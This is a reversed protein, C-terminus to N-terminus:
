AAAAALQAPISFWLRDGAGPELGSWLARAGEERAVTLTTGVLGRANLIRYPNMGTSSSLFAKSPSVSMCMVHLSPAAVACPAALLKLGHESTSRHSPARRRCSYGSRQQTSRCASSRCLVHKSGDPTMTCKNCEPRRTCLVMCHSMCLLTHTGWRTASGSQLRFRAHHAAMMTIAMFHLMVVAHGCRGYRWRTIYQRGHLLCIQSLRDPTEGRSHLSRNCLRDFKGLRSAAADPADVYGHLQRV